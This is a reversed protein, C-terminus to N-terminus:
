LELSFLFPPDDKLNNLSRDGCRVKILEKLENVHRDALDNIGFITKDHQIIWILFKNTKLKPDVSFVGL